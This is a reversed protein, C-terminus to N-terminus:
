ELLFDPLAPSSFILIVYIGFIRCYTSNDAAFTITLLYVAIFGLALLVLAASFKPIKSQVALFLCPLSYDYGSAYDAATVINMIIGTIYVYVM